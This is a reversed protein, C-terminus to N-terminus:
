LSSTVSSDPQLVFNFGNPSVSSSQHDHPRELKIRIDTGKGREPKGLGSLHTNKICGYQIVDM